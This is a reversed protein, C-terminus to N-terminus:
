WNPNTKSIRPNSLKPINEPWKSYNEAMQYIKHGNSLTIAMQNIKGM